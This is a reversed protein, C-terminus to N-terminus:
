LRSAGLAVYLEVKKGIDPLLPRRLGIYVQDVRPAHGEAGTTWNPDRIVAPPERRKVRNVKQGLRKGAPSLRKDDPNRAGASALEARRSRWSADGKVVGGVKHNAVAAGRCWAKEDEGGLLTRDAAPVEIDIRDIRNEGYVVRGVRDISELSASHVLPDSRAVIAHPVKDVYGVEAIAYNLLVVGVEVKDVKEGIGVRDRIRVRRAESGEANLVDIALKVHGKGHLIVLTLVDDLTQTCAEHVHEIQVPVKNLGEGGSARQVSRPTDSEGGGIESLQAVVQEDAVEAITADICKVGSRTCEQAMHQPAVPRRDSDFTKPSQCEAVSSERSSPVVQEEGGSNLTL